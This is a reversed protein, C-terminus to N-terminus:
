EGMTLGNKAEEIESNQGNEAKNVKETIKNTTTPEAPPPSEVTRGERKIQCTQQQISGNGSINQDALHDQAIKRAM